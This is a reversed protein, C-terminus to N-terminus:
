EGVAQSTLMWALRDYSIIYHLLTVLGFALAWGPQGALYLLYVSGGFYVIELLLRVWGTVAVPAKGPDNPVRFTGWLFAALLPLGLTWLIRPLGSHQTWGWYGLAFLGFLELLFRLALNIPNKGM